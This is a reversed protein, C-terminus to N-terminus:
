LNALRSPCLSVQSFIARAELSFFNESTYWASPLSTRIQSDRTESSKSTNSSDSTVSMSESGEISTVESHTREAHFTADEQSPRGAEGEDSRRLLNFGISDELGM